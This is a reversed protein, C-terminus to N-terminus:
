EGAEGLPEESPNPKRYLAPDAHDIPKRTERLRELARVGIIHAEQSTLYADNLIALVEALGPTTVKRRRRDIRVPRERGDTPTLPPLNM